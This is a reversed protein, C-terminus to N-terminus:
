PTLNQIAELFGFIIICMEKVAIAIMTSTHTGILNWINQQETNGGHRSVGVIKTM